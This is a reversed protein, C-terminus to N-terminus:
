TNQAEILRQVLVVALLGGTFGVTPGLLFVCGNYRARGVYALWQEGSKAALLANFGLSHVAVNAVVTSMWVTRVFRWTTMRDAGRAEAASVTVSAAVIGVFPTILSALASILKM